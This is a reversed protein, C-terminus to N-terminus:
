HNVCGSTCNRITGRVTAGALRRYVFLQYREGYLGPIRHWQGGTGTGRSVVVGTDLDTVIHGNGTWVNIEVWHESNHAEIARTVCSPATSCTVSDYAANAPATAALSGILAAGVVASRLM